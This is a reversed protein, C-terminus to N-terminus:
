RRAIGTRMEPPRGFAVFLQSALYRARRPDRRRKIRLNDNIRRGSADERREPHRLNMRFTAVGHSGFHVLTVTGDVDVEAVIAVHTLPDDVRGNHNRDYTDHFFALDGPLPTRSLAGLRRFAVYERKVANGDVDRAMPLQLGLDDFVTEVLGSCDRRELAGDNDLYREAREAIQTGLPEGVRVLPPSHVDGRMAEDESLGPGRAHVCGTALVLGVMALIRHPAMM